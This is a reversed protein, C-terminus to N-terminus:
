AILLAYDATPRLLTVGPRVLRACGVAPFDDDGTAPLVIPQRPSIPEADVMSAVSAAAQDYGMAIGLKDRWYEPLPRQVPERWLDAVTEPPNTAVTTPPNADCVESAVFQWFGVPMFEVWRTAIPETRPEKQGAPIFTRYGMREKPLIFKMPQEYDLNAPNIGDMRGNVISLREDPLDDDQGNHRRSELRDLSDCKEDLHALADNPNPNEQDRVIGCLDYLANIYAKYIRRQRYPATTSSVRRDYEARLQATTSCESFRM